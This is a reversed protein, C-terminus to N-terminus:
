AVWGDAVRQDQPSLPPKDAKLLTTCISLPAKPQVNCQCVPFGEWFESHHLAHHQSSDTHAMPNTLESQDTVVIPTAELSAVQKSRVTGEETDQYSSKLNPATRHKLHAWTPTANWMSWDLLVLAPGSSPLQDQVCDTEQPFHEFCVRSVEPDLHVSISRCSHLDESFAMQSRRKASIIVSIHSMVTNTELFTITEEGKLVSYEYSVQVWSRSSQIFHFECGGALTLTVTVTFASCASSNIGADPCNIWTDYVSFVRYLFHNWIIHCKPTIDSPIASLPLIWSVSNWTNQWTLHLAVIKTANKTKWQLFLVFTFIAFIRSQRETFFTSSCTTRLSNKKTLLDSQVWILM